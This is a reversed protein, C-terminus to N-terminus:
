KWFVSCRGAIDPWKGTCLSSSQHATVAKGCGLQRCVVEADNLDWDNDCVTGWQGDYLIEVRGSCSDTGGILRMNGSCTVGADEGHSCGHSGFGSHSCQTISSESGSCQVHNLLIPGSGQGFHANQHATVAKGCGLQRCVVEADNLDWDDDCVTGWQGDHLIEVRGSCSDTGGIIRINGSCTVGADEGHGCNNKGFGSHSCQTISSESESCQVNDLWIQGSGQGFHANQHATVAKGCGLQRCVVEADNLDWDNDCVTGWQGDHLIEVRGSCSDTGGILRINGSCTVGADEGHNCNLNGFGSHSCETISSESGSCQVNNLWIPGSGQGFHAIQHATVAKGCGLQRCVVEADNLDWDDDCVTGWQGDHLIEVRGSCINNGILRINSARESSERSRRRNM